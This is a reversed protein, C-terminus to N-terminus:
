GLNINREVINQILNDPAGSSIFFYSTYLIIGHTEAYDNQAEL